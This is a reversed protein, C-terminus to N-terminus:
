HLLEVSGGDYITEADIRETNANPHVAYNNSDNWKSRGKSDSGQLKLAILHGRSGITPVTTPPMAPGKTKHPTKRPKPTIGKKWLCYSLSFLCYLLFETLESM